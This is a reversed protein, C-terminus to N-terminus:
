RRPPDPPRSGRVDPRRRRAARPARRPGPEAAPADAAGSRGRTRGGVARHVQVRRIDGREVRQRADARREGLADDVPALGVPRERADVLQELTAPIPSATKEPSASLTAGQTRSRLSSAGAAAAHAGRPARDRRRIGPHRGGDHRPRDPPQAGRHEGHDQDPRRARQGSRRGSRRRREHQRAAAPRTAADAATPRCCRASDGSASAAAECRAASTMTSTTTPAVASGRAPTPRDPAPATTGRRRGRRRRRRASRGGRHGDRGRDVQRSRRERDARSEREGRAHRWQRTGLLAAEPQAGVAVHPDRRRRRRPQAPRDAQARTERLRCASEAAVAAREHGPEGDAVRARDALLEVRRHLRAREAVEGRHRSRVARDHRGGREGSAASQRRRCPGRPDDRGEDGQAAEDHEHRGLRADHTGAAIATTTSTAMAHPRGPPPTAARETATM